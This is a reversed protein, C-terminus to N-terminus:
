GGVVDLGGKRVFGSWREEVEGICGCMEAMDAGLLSLCNRATMPSSTANEM